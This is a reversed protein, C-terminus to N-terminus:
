SRRTREHLVRVRAKWEPALEPIAEVEAIRNADGVERYMVASLAAISWRPDVREVLTLADGAAIHGAEVVRCYFGTRLSAIMSKLLTPIGATLGPTNCRETPMTVALLTTGIRVRDGVHAREDTYGRLTLNEGVWPPPPPPDLGESLVDYHEGSFCHLARNLGGHHVHDGVEDFALGEVRVEVPGQRPRKRVASTLSQGAVEFHETAALSVLEVTARLLESM